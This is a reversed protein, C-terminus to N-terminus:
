AGTLRVAAKPDTVYMTPVRAAMIRWAERKEENIVRSYPGPIEDSIGGLMRSDLVRVTGAPVRNSVFWNLGLIGDLDTARGDILNNARSERPLAQRIDEDTRVALAELPNLLVLDAVYGMDVGEIISKAGEIDEIIAASGGSWPAAVTDTQIPAADLTAVAVTDVKRVITNRLRILERRLLDKRNRRVAEYSLLVSGGWKKVLAVLPVPEAGNLIPFESIPTIEQVDRETYLDNETVQDYVVAGASATPGGTFIRDAIFREKSLDRIAREVRAPNNLFVSVTINEGNITPPAPPYATVPPM